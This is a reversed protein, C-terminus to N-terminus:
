DEKYLDDLHGAIEKLVGVVKDYDMRKPGIVGVTGKMGDGLDYTTTVVSCDKMSEVQSESGIYVHVDSEENNLSDQVITGLADKQEIELLIDKAKQHDTLEPYRFINTAGSTYIKLNDDLKIAEAAASIVNEVLGEYEGAQKKIAAILGLNVQEVPIGNLASNLLMNLMLLTEQSLAEEVPIMTNRVLNRELVVVALIHGADVQSLQIFKIKNGQVTPASIMSAYNTNNALLTAVQQLLKELKEERSVLLTKMEEVERRGDSLLNDVYIRYGADTPVRGASTHPQKILGMDELDSMENRITASSLNLDMSKSLTRSGVPEGTELYNRIIAQLIKMQRGQLEM